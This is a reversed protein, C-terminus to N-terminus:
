AKHRAAAACKAEELFRDLEVIKFPKLLHRQYGAAQSVVSNTANNGLGTMSIAFVPRTLKAKGLLDWGSGDPLGIDSILLDCETTRLATVGESLSCATFVTHDLGELYFTLWQLTDIHNEVILIRMSLNQHFDRLVKSGGLNAEM